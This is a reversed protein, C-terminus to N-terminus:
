SWARSASASAAASCPAPTPRTSGPCSSSAPSRWTWSCERRHRDPLGVLEHGECWLLDFVALGVPEAHGRRALAPAVGYFSPASGDGAVLEADVVVEYGAGVLGDLGTVRASIPRGSRTTIRVGADLSPSVAVQVRWGDLKPEVTWGVLPLTPAGAM